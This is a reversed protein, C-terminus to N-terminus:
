VTLFTSPKGRLRGIKQAELQSFFNDCAANFTPFELKPQEGHQAFLYPHFEQVFPYNM